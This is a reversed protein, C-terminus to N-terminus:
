EQVEIVIRAQVTEAEGQVKAAVSIQWNGEMSLDTAFRYEGPTEVPLATIQSTMMAMGDPEMDVRTAFIIAGEVTQQSRLDTLRLTLVANDSVSYVTEVLEFAYDAEGAQVASVTLLSAAAFAACFRSIIHPM